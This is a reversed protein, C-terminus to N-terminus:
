QTVLYTELSMALQLPRAQQEPEAGAEARFGPAAQRVEDWTATGGASSAPDEKDTAM